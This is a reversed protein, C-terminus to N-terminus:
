PRLRLERKLIKGTSNRPLVDEVRFEAPVKYAALKTRCLAVAAARDFGAGARLTLHARVVEGWHEDPVGIVAVDLAGPLEALVSEIEAPYINEGGRIIMDTRRGSLYLYGDAARWALDGGHYWGDVIRGAAGDLYGSMVADSRTIIEGVEGDAVDEGNEDVLRLDVGTGPKGISALLHEEGALARRHEEPGLITQLGAETGAGFMNTFECGFTDMARRLLAPSMPAAGYSIGLLGPHDGGAADPLELLASIMTPVLFCRNLRGSRLHRLVTAADFEPSILSTFCRAVGALVYLWGGNHHLPAPSYSVSGPTIRAELYTQRTFHKVVAQSHLV